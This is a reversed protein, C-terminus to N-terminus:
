KALLSTYGPDRARAILAEFAAQSRKTALPDNLLRAYVHYGHLISMVNFSIQGPELTERFHRKVMAERTANEISQLWHKQVRALYYRCVGPRDDLEATVAFFIDGGPLQKLNAYRLWGDFLARVRPEGPDSRGAPVLVHSSFLSTGAQLVALDLAEKTGFHAILGSKSLGLERALGGITLGTLGFQSAISVARELIAERTKAGKGM